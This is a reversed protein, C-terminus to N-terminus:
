NTQENINEKNSNNMRDILMSIVHELISSGNKEFERIVTFTNGNVEYTREKSREINENMNEGMDNYSHPNNYRGLKKDINQGGKM